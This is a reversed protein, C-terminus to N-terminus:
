RGTQSALFGLPHPWAGCRVEFPTGKSVPYNPDGLKPEYVYQCSKCEASGTGITAFKEELDPNDRSLVGKAKAGAADSAEESSGGETAALILRSGRHALRLGSTRPQLSSEGSPSCRLPTRQVAGHAGACMPPLLTRAAMTGDFRAQSRTHAVTAAVKFLRRLSLAAALAGEQYLARFLDAV